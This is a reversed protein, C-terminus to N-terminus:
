MRRFAPLARSRMMRTANSRNRGGGARDRRARKHDTGDFTQAPRQRSPKTRGTDPRSKIAAHWHAQTMREFQLASLERRVSNHLASRECWRRGQAAGVDATAAALTVLQGVQPYVRGAFWRLVTQGATSLFVAV